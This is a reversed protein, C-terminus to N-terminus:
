DDSPDPGLWLGESSRNGNNYTAIGCTDVKAFSLLSFRINSVLLRVSVPKARTQLLPHCLPMIQRLLINSTYSLSRAPCLLKSPFTWGVFLLPKKVKTFLIGHHIVNHHQRFDSVSINGTGCMLLQWCLFLFLRIFKGFVCLRCVNRRNAFQDNVDVLIIPFLLCSPLFLKALTRQSFMKVTQQM